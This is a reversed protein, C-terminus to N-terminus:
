SKLSIIENDEPKIKISSIDSTIKTMMERYLIHKIERIAKLIKEKDKIKM